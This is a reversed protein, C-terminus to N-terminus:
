TEPSDNASWELIHFHTTVKVNINQPKLFTDVTWLTEAFTNSAHLWMDRQYCIKNLFIVMCANADSKPLLIRDACSDPCTHFQVTVSLIYTIKTLFDPISTVAVCDSGEKTERIYTVCNRSNFM